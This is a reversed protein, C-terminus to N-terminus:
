GYWFKYYIVSWFGTLNIRGEGILRVVSIMLFLLTQVVSGVQNFRNQYLVQSKINNYIITLTLYGEASIVEADSGHKKMSLFASCMM